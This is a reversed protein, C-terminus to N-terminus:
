GLLYIFFSAGYGCISIGWFAWFTRADQRLYSVKPNLPCVHVQEPVETRKADQGSRFPRGGFLSFKKGLYEKGEYMYSYKVAVLWLERRNVTVERVSLDVAEVAIKPWSRAWWMVVFLLLSVSSILAAFGALFMYM